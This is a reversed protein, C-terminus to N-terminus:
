NGFPMRLSTKALYFNRKMNRRAM